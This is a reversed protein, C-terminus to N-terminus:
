TAYDTPEIRHKQIKNWLNKPSVGLLRAADKQIGAAKKLAAVIMNREMDQLTERLNGANDPLIERAPAAAQGPEVGSREPGRLARAIDTATLVDGSSLIAARELTYALQRVNSRFLM